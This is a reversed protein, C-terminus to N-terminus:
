LNWLLGWLCYKKDNNKDEPEKNSENEKKEKAFSSPLINFPLIKSLVPLLITGGPLLFIGLAPITKLIDFLQTQFASKEEDSLKEGKKWKMMMSGMDKTETLEKLIKDKNSKVLNTVKKIVHKEFSNFIKNLTSQHILDENEHLYNTVDLLLQNHEEQSIAFFDRIETLAKTELEDEENDLMITIISIKYITKLIEKGFGVSKLNTLIINLEKKEFSYKEGYVVSSLENFINLEHKDVKGDVAILYYILDLFYATEINNKTLKESIENQKGSFYLITCETFLIIKLFIFLHHYLSLYIKFKKNKDYLNFINLLEVESQISIGNNLLTILEFFDNLNDKKDYYFSVNKFIKIVLPIFETQATDKNLLEKPVVGTYGICKLLNCKLFEPPLEKIHENVSIGTKEFKDKMVEQFNM